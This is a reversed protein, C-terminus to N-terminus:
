FFYHIPGTNIETQWIALVLNLQNSIIIMQQIARRNDQSNTTNM